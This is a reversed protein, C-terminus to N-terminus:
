ADVPPGRKTESRILTAAAKLPPPEAITEHDALWEPPLLGLHHPAYKRVATTLFSSSARAVASGVGNARPIARIDNIRTRVQAASVNAWSERVEREIERQRITAPQDATIATPQPRHLKWWAGIHGRLEAYNPVGHTCASAVAGLSDLTFAGDPFDDLMPLIATLAKAATTADMPAVLKALMAVWQQRTKM